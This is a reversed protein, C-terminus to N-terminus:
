ELLDGRIYCAKVSVDLREPLAEQDLNLTINDAM